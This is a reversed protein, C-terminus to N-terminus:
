RPSAVHWHRAGRRGSAQTALIDFECKGLIAATADADRYCPNVGAIKLTLHNLRRFWRPRAPPPLMSRMILRGGPLLREHIRELTKELEWDQLYHSVDIMVALDLLVDMPPLDPASGRIIRGRGGLALAAVRVCEPDPDIGHITAGPYRDATWCAPVGYGCGVDLINATDTGAPVMAALEDVLPDVQRQCHAVLRPYPAMNRYPQRTGGPASEFRRKLLPPLILWTGALCYGIGCFFIWGAHNLLPHDAVLLGSLGVLTSVAAMFVATRFVSFHPHDFRQYRQCCRIMFLTYGAGPGSLIALLLMLETTDPCRGMFGLTGLTCVLAFASPLLATLLLGTDAIFVTLLLMFGVGDMLMMNIFRGSLWQEAPPYVRQPDFVASMDSIRGFFRRSDFRERPTIPTTQRWRGDSADRYIGLLPQVSQPITPQSTSAASIMKIFPDFEGDAFGLVAGHRIVAASVRQVREGTWFRNWAGANAARRDPGPFFLSPTVAKEIGGAHTETDLREQLRDNKEQLAALDGAETTLCVKADSAGWVASMLRNAAQTELSRGNTAKLSTDVPPRIFVALVAATILALALGPRGASSLRKGILSLRCGTTATGNQDGPLIRPFVTQVFLFSFGIGMATFRGLEELVAVGSFAMVGFAGIAALAAPLGVARIERSALQGADKGAGHLFGMHAIGGDALISVVAGGFGLVMISISDQILSVVFLAMVTGALAPLLALLGALPKSFAALLLACIGVTAWRIARHVDNKLLSDNDLVTRFRGTATLTITNASSRKLDRDLDQFFLALARAADTGSGAPSATVRLHHRDASLIRGHHIVTESERNLPELRAMVLHHLCLPDAATPTARGNGDAQDRDDRIRTMAQRIAEDTLLPAVQRRLEGATFLVPLHEVVQDALATLGEQMSRNKVPEFLDSQELRHEVMEAAEVLRQVSEQSSGIDIAIPARVPHSACIPISGAIAPVRASLYRDVDTHISVRQLAILFLATGTFVVMLLVLTNISAKLRM